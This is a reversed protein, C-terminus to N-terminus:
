YLCENGKCVYGALIGDQQLQLQRTSVLGKQQIERLQKEMANFANIYDLKFDLADKGTFGMVLLTFGDRNMLYMPRQKGQEDKYTASKYLGRLKLNALIQNNISQVVNDHRKGFKQAIQLSTTVAQQNKVEVLPLQATAQVTLQTTKM